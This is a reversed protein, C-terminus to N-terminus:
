GSRWIPLPVFAPFRLCFGASSFGILNRSAAELMQQHKVERELQNLHLQLALPNIDFSM